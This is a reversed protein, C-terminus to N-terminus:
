LNTLFVTSAYELNLFNCIDPTSLFFSKVSGSFSKNFLNFSSLSICDKRGFHGLYISLWIQGFNVNNKFNSDRLIKVCFSYVQNNAQLMFKLNVCDIAIIKKTIPDPNIVGM